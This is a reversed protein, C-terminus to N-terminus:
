FVFLFHHKCTSIPVQKYVLVLILIFFNSLNDSNDNNIGTLESFDGDLYPAFM